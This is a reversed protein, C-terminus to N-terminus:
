TVATFVELALFTLRIRRQYVARHGDEGRAGPARPRM